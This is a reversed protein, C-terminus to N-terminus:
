AALDPPPAEVLEAPTATPDFALGFDLLPHLWSGALAARAPDSHAAPDFVGAVAGSVTRDNHKAWTALIPADVLGQVLELRRLKPLLGFFSALPKWWRARIRETTGGALAALTDHVPVKWGAANASRELALCALLAAALNKEEEALARYALFAAAPDTDTFAPLTKLEALLAKFLTHGPCEQLHPAVFERPEADDGPRWAAGLLRLGLKGSGEGTLEGRLQAWILYDRALTGAAADIADDLLLGRLIGRRLSRVVQLGDATFGHEAKVDARAQQGYSYSYSQGSLVADDPLVKGARAAAPSSVAAAGAATRQSAPARAAAAKAKRSVWWWTLDLEGTASIVLMAAIATHDAGAPFRYKGQKLPVELQLSHDTAGKYLPPQALFPLDAHGSATRVEDRVAALRAEALDRLLGENAIRGSGAAAEFLDPEFAGGAAQYTQLTVFRLLRGLEADDIKYFGRIRRPERQWDPLVAFHKFAASQLAQDGTAAFARAQELSLKGGSWAAFVEPALRGLRLLQETWGPRQGLHRTIDEISAGRDHADVVALATEYDRLDLRILNEALSEQTIAALDLNDRVVAAIAFDAPLEAQEILQALSRWRRGGALVAHTATDSWGDYDPFQSRLDPTIPHVVLPQMLGVRLLSAQMAATAAADQANKRVNLPSICLQDITFLHFIM